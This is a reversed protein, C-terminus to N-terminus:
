PCNIEIKDGIRLPLRIVYRTGKGVASDCEITGRHATIISYVIAMGLGTGKKGKTTFFPEFIRDVHEPAIGTGEDETSVVLFDSEIRGAIRIRGEGEMAETSNKILNTFVQYIQRPDAQVTPIEEPWDLELAAGKAKVAPGHMAMVERIILDLALPSPKFEPPKAFKLFDRVFQQVRASEKELKVLADNGKPSLDERHLANASMGVNNILNGVEHTVKSATVGLTALNKAHALERATRVERDLTKRLNGAMENFASGLEGIENKSAVAVQHDLDGASIRRVQAHMTEIPRILKRVRFWGLASAILCTALIIVAAWHFSKYMFANIERMDQRLVLFWDQDPLYAAMYLLYEGGSKKVWRLPAPTYKISQLIEADFQIEGLVVRDIERHGVFRGSANVIAVHGTTGIRIKELVDWVAKLNLTGFLVGEIAGMREVPVAMYVLPLNDSGALVETNAEEGSFASGIIRLVTEDQFPIEVGTSPIRRGDTDIMVMHEFKPKSLQFASLVMDIRWEDLQGVRLTWALSQLDSGANQMFSEIESASVQLINRYDRYITEHHYTSSTWILAFSTLVIGLVMFPIVFAM